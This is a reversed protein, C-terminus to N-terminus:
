ILKEKEDHWTTRVQELWNLWIGHFVRTCEWGYLKADSMLDEPHTTMRENIAGEERKMIIMYGQVFLALALDQYAAPKGVATYVVEHPWTVREGDNQNWGLAHM